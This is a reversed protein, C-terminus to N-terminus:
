VRELVARVQALEFPKGIFATIRGTALAQQVPEDDDYLYGSMLVCPLGPWNAAVQRALELGEMDPLKLDVFMLAFPQAALQTLAELGSHALVPQWGALSLIHRMAWCMDEEDDVVLVVRETKAM